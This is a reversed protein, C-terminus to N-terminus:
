NTDNDDRLFCSAVIAEIRGIQDPKLLLEAASRRRKPMRDPTINANM